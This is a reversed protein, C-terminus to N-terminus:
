RGWCEDVTAYGASSNLTAGREGTHKLTFTGCKDGSVNAQSGKPVAQLTFTTTTTALFSIDYADSATTTLAGPLATPYVGTATAARELWQAAQM